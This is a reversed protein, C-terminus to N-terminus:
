RADPLLSPRSQRYSQLRERRAPFGGGAARVSGRPLARPRIALAEPWLPLPMAGAGRSHVVSSGQRAGM